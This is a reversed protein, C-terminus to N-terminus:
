RMGGDALEFQLLITRQQPSFNDDSLLTLIIRGSRARHVSLAEMNDIVCRGDAEMVTRGDVLAGPRISELPIRRIRMSVGSLLSYKRELILLDGKPLLAADSIDYGDTRRVAFVGPTPGGILFGQINGAEDLGQESIAVLTGGLPRKKPVLELAELGQNNPLAAIGPPVTIPAGRSLIGKKGFDFRLIQNRRELGVYAVKGDEVLSETDLRGSPIGEAALVPAIVADAIGAPKDQSYVIRGQLWSGMDSLAIFRSGDKQVRLASFGGFSKNSSALVLGGRFDLDGFRRKSSDDPDFAAVPEARVEIRTPAEPARQALGNGALIWFVALLCGLATIATSYFGTIFIRSRSADPRDDRGKLSLDTSKM